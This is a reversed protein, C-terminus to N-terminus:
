RRLLMWQNSLLGKCKADDLFAKLNQDHENRDIGTVTVNYTQELNYKEILNDIICQFTSVGNSVGYSM